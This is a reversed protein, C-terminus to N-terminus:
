QGPESINRSERMIKGDEDGKENKAKWAINPERYHHNYEHYGLDIGSHASTRHHRM